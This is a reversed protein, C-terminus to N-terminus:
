RSVEAGGWEVVTFGKREVPQLEPEAVDVPGDVAKFAMFVRIVSDPEPSVDLRAAETYRDTQFTVLNYENKELRPLWYDIFEAYEKRVLGMKPLIKLLFEEAESGKVVYGHSWDYETNDTSEWFIYDYSKGSAKDTLKGDPQATVHWEGSGAPISQTFRGDALTLRVTVDTTKEPYLYIVPKEKGGEMMFFQATIWGYQGKWMVYVWGDQWGLETLETKDPIVDIVHYETGPGYRMNLGEPSDVYGHYGSESSNTPEVLKDPDINSSPTVEVKIEEKKETLYEMSCWGTQGDVTTNAWGDKEDDVKIEQGYSLPYIVDNEKGPGKRLLLGDEATVYMTKPYESKAEEEQAQDAEETSEEEETAAAPEEAEAPKDKSGCATFLATMCVAICIAMFLAFLRRKKMDSVGKPSLLCPVTRQRRSVLAAKM